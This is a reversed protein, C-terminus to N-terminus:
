TWSSVSGTEGPGARDPLRARGASFAEAPLRGAGTRGIAGRGRAGRPREDPRSAAGAEVSHADRPNEDGSLRPMTLDLLVADVDEHRKEFLEIASPGDAATFVKFGRKELSARAVERITPEDDIVLITRVVRSAVGDYVNVTEPSNSRARAPFLVTFTSGLGPTSEVRITGRHARVIGQVAALGLGRGTFKTSFFPDFIRKRTEEDMGAGEDRVELFVSAQPEERDFHADTMAGTRVLIAKELERTGEGEPEEDDVAEAANILLNLVVQQLQTPDADIAPLNPALALKLSATHELTARVLPLVGEVIHNLDTPGMDFQDKGAYALMKSTLEAARQAANLIRDLQEGAPSDVSVKTAALSASGLIGTLLNNFDHALGGALVGLSELKRAHQFQSEMLRRVEEAQKRETIDTAIMLVGDAEESPRIPILRVLWVAHSESSVEVTRRTLTSVVEGFSTRLRTKDAGRLYDFVSTGLIQDVPRGSHTTNIFRITGARDTTLIVDPINQLIIRLWAEPDLLTDLGALDPARDGRERDNM